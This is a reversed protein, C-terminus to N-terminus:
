AQVGIARERYRQLFAAFDEQPEDEIVRLRALSEEAMADFAATRQPSLPRAQFHAQHLQSQQMAFRFYSGECAEIAALVQASPTLAPDALKAAQQALSEAHAGGGQQRDLLTALPAMAALLQEGWERLCRPQAGAVLRLGPERGRNVVTEWNADVARDEEAELAPSEALLCYLLFVDLFRSVAGDLGLPLFPNVDLLRVEVYEVGRERLAKLRPEGPGATRKPRINAYFEDEIQLVTDALQRYDGDVQVGIAQYAPHPTLLGQRLGAVYAPLSNYAVNLQRQADSTYGLGGMRLATGYPAYLTGQGLSQLQHPRGGLFSGCLAPSAGFLYLPLWAWRKFNRLLAFYQATIFDQQPGTDGRLRQYIAWFGAPLSFNYHIGAITQMRRGYRYGLGRRYLTKMRAGNSHGYQALPIQDDPGLKCPMSACWLLEDEGLHQMTYRHIDALFLLAEDADFLAPTIFELLSESFDTTIHPHTLPAGLSAPHPTLALWGDPRIRLSEKEIGRRIEALTEIAGANQLDSLRRDIAQM